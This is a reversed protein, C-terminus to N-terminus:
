LREPGRMSKRASNHLHYGTSKWRERQVRRQAIRSDIESFGVRVRLVSLPMTPESHSQQVESQRVAGTSGPSRTRAGKSKLKHKQSERLGGGVTLNVHLVSASVLWGRVFEGAERSHVVSELPGVDPGVREVSENNSTGLDDTKGFTARGVRGGTRGGGGANGGVRLTRIWGDSTRGGRAGWRDGGASGDAPSRLLPGVLTREAGTVHVSSAGVM